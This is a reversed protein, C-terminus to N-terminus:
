TSMQTDLLMKRPRNTDCLSTSDNCDSILFNLQARYDKYVCISWYCLLLIDDKQCWVSFFWQMETCSFICM